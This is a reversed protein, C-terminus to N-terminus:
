VLNGAAIGAVHTGHGTGLPGPVPSEEGPAPPDSPRSYARAAIVKPTTYRTDGRPYGSPYSYGAADFMPHDLAIGDDLVAIRVGAGANEAGGVTPWYADAGIAPVSAFSALEFVDEEYVAQIGPLALLTDVADVDGEPLWLALGNLAVRYAARVEADPLARALSERAMTHSQEIQALHEAAASDELHIGLADLAGPAAELLPPEDLVVIVRRGAPDSSDGGLPTARVERSELALLALVIALIMRLVMAPWVRSARAFGM